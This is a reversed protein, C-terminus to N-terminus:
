HRAGGAPRLDDIAIPSTRENGVRDTAPRDHWIRNTAEALTRLWRNRLKVCVPWVVRRDQLRTRKLYEVQASYLQPSYLIALHDGKKIDVGTYDALREIRGDICATITAQRSEDIAINGVTQLMAEIPGSEVPATQINALRRQAPEIRVALEEINAAGSAAPVLAMGCIPCRGPTPQRIQPHM